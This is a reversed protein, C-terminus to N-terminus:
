VKLKNRRWERRIPNTRFKSNTRVIVWAPVPSTRRMAKGLRLKLPLTKHKSM